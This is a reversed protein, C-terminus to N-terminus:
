PLAALFGSVSKYAAIEASMSRLQKIIGPGVAPHSTVDLWRYSAIRIGFIIADSVPLKLLHQDEIRVFIEEPKTSADLPPIPEAPHQNTVVSATLGWNARRWGEGPILRSFFASIKPGLEPNLGPVADHIWALPRGAKEELSWRSPFCVSAWVLSWEPPRVILLDPELALGLCRGYACEDAAEGSSLGILDVFERAAQHGEPTVLTHRGSVRNLIAQKERRIAPGAATAAYFREAHDRRLGM